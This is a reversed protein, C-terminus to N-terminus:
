YVADHVVGLGILIRLGNLCSFIPITKQKKIQRCVRVRAPRGTEYIIHITM